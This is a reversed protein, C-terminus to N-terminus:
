RVTYTVIIIALSLLRIFVMNDLYRGRCCWGYIRCTHGAEGISKSKKMLSINLPTRPSRTGVSAEPMSASINASSATSNASDDASRFVASSVM